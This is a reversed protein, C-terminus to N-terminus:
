RHELPIRVEFSFIQSFLEALSLWLLNHINTSLLISAPAIAGVWPDSAIPAGHAM